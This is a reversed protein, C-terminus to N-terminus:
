LDCNSVSGENRYDRPTADSGENSVIENSVIVGKHWEGRAKSGDAEIVTGYGHQKGSHWQGRYTRGNLWTLSGEGQAIHHCSMTFRGIFKAESM